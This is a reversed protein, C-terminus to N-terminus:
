SHHMWTKRSKPKPGTVGGDLRAARQAQKAAELKRDAALYKGWPDSLKYLAAQYTADAIPHAAM